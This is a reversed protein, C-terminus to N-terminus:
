PCGEPVALTTGYDLTDAWSRTGPGSVVLVEGTDHPEARPHWGVLQHHPHKTCAHVREQNYSERHDAGM